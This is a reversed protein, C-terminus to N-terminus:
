PGILQEFAQFEASALVSSASPRQDPNVVLMLRLLDRLHQPLEVKRIEEDFPLIDQLEEESMRRASKVAAKLSHGEVEGPDPINWDPFLRKIKAM